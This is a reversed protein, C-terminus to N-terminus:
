SRRIRRDVALTLVVGAALVAGGWISADRAAAGVRPAFASEISRVPEGRQYREIQEQTFQVAAVYVQRDFAVNWVVFAFVAWLILATRKGPTSARM